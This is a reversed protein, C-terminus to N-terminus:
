NKKFAIAHTEELNYWSVAMREPVYLTEGARLIAVRVPQGYM